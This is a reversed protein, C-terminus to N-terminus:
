SENSRGQTPINIIFEAGFYSEGWQTNSVNITGNFHREIIQKAMYLGIGTGVSKHKTTFYPEFVKSQDELTIGGGNDRVCLVVNYGIKDLLIEINLDTFGEESQAKSKLADIANNILILIVQVFSNQYGEISLNEKKICVDIHINNEKLHEKLLEISDEISTAFTFSEIDTKPHFFNRFNEITNSMEIAIKMGYQTQQLVFENDLKNQLAKSKFSQILLTLSNLPQRWQHAINQIMEGMSALRAQSYMIMDKKRNQEVEYQISKELNANLIQLEKTKSDVLEKLLLHHTNISRHILFALAIITAIVVFMFFVLFIFTFSYLADTIKKNTFVIHFSLAVERKLLSSLILTDNLAFAKDISEKLMRERYLIDQLTKYENPMFTKTYRKRLHTTLSDSNKNANLLKYQEWIQLLQTFNHQNQTDNEILPILMHINRSHISNKEFEDKLETLAFLGLGAVFGLGVIIICMLIRTKTRFSITNVFSFAKNM